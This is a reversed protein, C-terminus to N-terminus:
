GRFERWAEELVSAEQVARAGLSAMVKVATLICADGEPSAAAAAFDLHHSVTGLSATKISVAVAPVVQSVNGFDTSAPQCKGASHEGPLGMEALIELVQLGLARNEKVPEFTPEETIELRAGMALAAARACNRVKELVERFYKMDAARVSFEAQAFDPVVNSARGGSTVIGHIRADPRCHQRLANVNNFTQIVADLANVGREPEAAAHASKGHFSFIVTKVALCTGGVTNRTDPHMSIVLDVNEYLGADVMAIKGGVTEEAPTGDVIITGLPRSGEVVGAQTGDAGAGGTGATQRGAATGDAGAGGTGATRRGEGTGAETREGGAQAAELARALAIGAGLASAAIINHGCAHGVGPLADYEALFAIVPRGSGRRARFATAMGAVPAEVSFGHTRLLEVCWAAAKEEQLGLEPNAHIKHSLEILAPALSEVEKRADRALDPV